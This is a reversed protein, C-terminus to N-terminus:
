QTEMDGWSPNEEDVDMESQSSVHSAYSETNNRGAGVNLSLLPVMNQVSSPIVEYNYERQQPPVEENCSGYSGGRVPTALESTLEDSGNSRTHPDPSASNARLSSVSSGSLASLSPNSTTLPVRIRTSPSNNTSSVNSHSGDTSVYPNNIFARQSGPSSTVSSNSLSYSHPHPQPHSPELHITPNSHHHPHIHAHPHTQSHVQPHIDPGDRRRVSVSVRAPINGLSGGGSVPGGQVPPQQQRSQHRPAGSPPIHHLSHKEAHYIRLVQSVVPHTDPDSLWMNANSPNEHLAMLAMLTKPKPLALQIVPSALIATIIPSDRELGQDIDSHNLKSVLYECAAKCDNSTIRLAEISEDECFGMQRLNELAQANPQFWPKRYQKLARLIKEVPDTTSLDTDDMAVDANVNTSEMETSDETGVQEILWAIAEQANNRKLQLAKTAKAEPFGMETLKRLSNKDVKPRHRRELKEFIQKFVEESDPDASILRVSAEIMTILIRRFETHNDPSQTTSNIVRDHNRAPLNATAEKIQQLTPPGMDRQGNTDPTPPARRPVLLLEDNDLLQEFFITANDTLPRAERVLVLRYQLGDGKESGAAELPTFFHGVAMNKVREINMDSPADISYDRGENNLVVLKVTQQNFLSQESVFMEYPINRRLINVYRSNITVRARRKLWSLM